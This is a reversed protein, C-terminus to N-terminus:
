CHPEGVDSWLYSPLASLRSVTKVRLLEHVYEMFMQFYYTYVLKSLCDKTQLYLVVLTAVHPRTEILTM